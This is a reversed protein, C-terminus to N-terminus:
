IIGCQTAMCLVEIANKLRPATLNGFYGAIGKTKILATWGAVGPPSSLVSKEQGL